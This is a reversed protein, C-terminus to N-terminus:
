PLEHSHCISIRRYQSPRVTIAVFQNVGTSERYFCAAVTRGYGGIAALRFFIPQIRHGDFVAFFLSFYRTMESNKRDAITWSELIEASSLLATASLESSSCCFLSRFRQEGRL